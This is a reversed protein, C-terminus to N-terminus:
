EAIEVCNRGAEKARYLALDSKKVLTEANDVDLVMISVGISLTVHNVEPFQHSAIKERVKEAIIKSGNVDTEPLLILFEEGGWRAVVDTARVSESIIKAVSRLVEDGVDHGYQDNIKKFYDLDMLLISVPRKHRNARLIENKLAISIARRNNIGTLYDTKTQKDLSAQYQNSVKEYLFAMAISLSFAMATNAYVVDSIGAIGTVKPYIYLRGTFIIMLLLSWWFGIKVGAVFLFFIPFVGMWISSTIDEPSVFFQGGLALFSLFLFTHIALVPRKFHHTIFIMALSITALILHVITGTILGDMFDFYAGAFLAFTCLPLGYYIFRHKIPSYYSQNEM